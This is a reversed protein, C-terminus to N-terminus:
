FQGTRLLVLTCAELVRIGRDTLTKKMEDDETGPNFIARKPALAALDDLSSKLLEPRVYISVTDIPGTVDRLTPVAAIGLVEEERPNLPIVEHGYERLMVMAKHSYRTPNNSAGILLVRENMTLTRLSEGGQAATHPYLRDQIFGFPSYFNMGGIQKGPRISPLNRVPSSSHYVFFWPM